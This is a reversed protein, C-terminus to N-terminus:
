QFRFGLVSIIPTFYDVMDSLSDELHGDLWTVKILNNVKHLGETRLSVSNSSKDYVFDDITRAVDYSIKYAAAKYSITAGKIFESTAYLIGRGYDVSYKNTPDFDPDKYYYSIEIDEPLYNGTTVYVTVTGDAAIFYEGTSNVVSASGVLTAFKNSDSFHVGLDAFYLHGASLMFTITTGTSYIRTTREDEMHLLGYFESIGDIFEIEEPRETTAFLNDSVVVSGRVIHNYSLSKSNTDDVLGITRQAYRGTRIDVIKSTANGTTDTQSVCIFKDLPVKVGWPTLGDESYVVDFDAKGIGVASMHNFSLRITDADSPANLWVLGNVPDIYYSDPTSQVLTRTTVQTYTVGEKSTIQVSDDLLNTYGLKILTKDRPLTISAKSKDRPLSEIGISNKDPDFLLEMRHYFGDARQEFEMVEPDLVLEVKSSNPLDSSFELETFDDSFSWENAGLTSNDANFAYEVGNVYVHVEEPDIGASSIDLPLEIKTDTGTGYGVLLKRHRDGRRAVRSQMAFVKSQYPKEPLSVNYPSHATSVARLLNRTPRIRKTDPLFSSVQRIASDNRQLSIKWVLGVEDGDLLFSKAVGTDLDDLSEWTAGHDKSIDIVIDFLDPQPPFIDAVPLGVYLGAPLLQETSNMAGAQQYSTKLVEVSKLGIAYRSRETASTGLSVPIRYSQSQSLKIVITKAKTPLFSVSWGDTTLSKVEWFTKELNPSVLTKVSVSTKGDTSLLIDEVFASLSEGLNIPVIRITNVIDEQSLDIQLNLALPGIDLKEYEFWYNPDAKLINEININNTTVEVDSNGPVGNSGQGVAVRKMTVTKQTRIPLTLIGESVQVSCPTKSIFRTDLNDLNLFSDSLIYKAESSNWLKLVGKKQRIRKLKGILARLQAQNLNYHDLFLETFRRLKTLAVTLLTEFDSYTGFLEQSTVSDTAKLETLKFDLDIVKELLNVAEGELLLQEEETRARNRLDIYRKLLQSLIEVQVIFKQSQLASLSM